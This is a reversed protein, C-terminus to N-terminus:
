IRSLFFPRCHKGETKWWSFHSADREPPVALLCILFFLSALFIFGLYILFHVQNPRNGRPWYYAVVVVKGCSNRAKGCGFKSTGAWVLQTFPGPM